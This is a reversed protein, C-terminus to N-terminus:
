RDVGSSARRSWEVMHRDYEAIARESREVFLEFGDATDAYPGAGVDYQRREAALSRALRDMAAGLGETRAFIGGAGSAVVVVFGLVPAVWDDWGLAQSLPVAAGALLSLSWASQVGATRALAATRSRRLRKDFRAIYASQVTSDAM